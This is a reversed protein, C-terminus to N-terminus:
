AHFAALREAEAEVETRVSRGLRSFPEFAVRGHEYRWTGAVAGDVLFTSVSHPTKTNFVIPRHEEALIAKRRAHVLLTADWTPLFRVPAPTAPEPVSAGVLDVVELGDETRAGCIPLGALV